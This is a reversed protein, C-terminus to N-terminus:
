FKSVKLTSSNEGNLKLTVFYIGSSQNLSLSRLMYNHTGQLLGEDIITTIHKGLVNYVELQVNAPHELHFRIEAESGFPNPFVGLENFNNELDGIATPTAPDAPLEEKTYLYTFLMMEDDATLGFTVFPVGVNWKAEHILGHSAKKLPSFYRIPPHAWDYYGQYFTYDENYFGEYIQEGRSGDANRLYIDYDPGWQHLHSSIMYIYRDENFIDMAERVQNGQPLFLALNNTLQAFMRIDREDDIDWYINLYFDAPLIETDSYNKIHYDFDLVTNPEWFFATRNPLEFEADNQWAGTLSVNGNFPFAEDPVKRMGDRESSDDGNFKFLLMHHSQWSMFGDTKFVKILKDNYLREKKDWEVEESPALFIPGYRVQMGKSPDPAEPVPIFDFGGKSYYDKLLQYNVTNGNKQAGMLIWQRILEIEHNALTLNSEPMLEGEEEHLSLYNDFTAGIKKLLFSTYPHGPDVLKYGKKAAYANTVDANILANYVDDETGDLSFAVPNIGGHCGSASCNAQLLSYVTTFTGSASISGACVFLIIGAIFSIRLINM